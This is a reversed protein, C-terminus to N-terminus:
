PFGPLKKNHTLPSESQTRSNTTISTISQAQYNSALLQQIHTLYANIEDQETLHQVTAAIDEPKTDCREIFNAAAHIDADSFAHSMVWGSYETLVEAAGNHESTIVPCGCALAELCANAFPDNRTPLVMCDAAQYYQEINDVCGVFYVRQHLGAQRILEQMHHREGRGAVVLFADQRRGNVLEDLLRVAHPVGKRVFGSGSLLLMTGNAPLELLHRLDCKLQRSTKYIEPNYGNYITTMKHAWQPYEDRLQREVMHSNAVILAASNLSKREMRPALWHWPNFMWRKSNGYRRLVNRRHIGDGARYIDCDPGYELSLVLQGRRRLSFADICHTYRWCRWWPPGGKGPITQDQFTQGAWLRQVAYHQQLCSALREAAKEAGGTGSNRRLVYVTSTM